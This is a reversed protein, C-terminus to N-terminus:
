LADPFILGEDEFSTEEERLSEPQFAFPDASSRV